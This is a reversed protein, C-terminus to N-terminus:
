AATVQSRRLLLSMGTRPAWQVSGGLSQMTRTVAERFAHSSADDPVADASAVDIRLAGCPDDAVALSVTSREPACLLLDVVVPLLVRRLTPGDIDARPRPVSASLEVHVRRREALPEVLDRIAAAASVVDCSAGPADGVAPDLLTALATDLEQLQRKMVSGPPDGPRVPVGEQLLVLNLSAANLHGRLRHLWPAALHGNARLLAADLALGDLVATAPTFLAETV